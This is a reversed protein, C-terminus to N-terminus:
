KKLAEKTACTGISIQNMKQEEKEIEIGHETRLWEYGSEDIKKILEKNGELVIKGNMLIAVRDINILNYLRAYHSIILFGKGKEQEEKIVNAVVQIADVDLGSDIEDLMTFKPNLLLMQLIENKKKEGGSFGENLNRTSMEFPISTRKYAQDLMQYFKFLSVPKEQHANIAAKLFDANNVGPVESPYQMGLFIGLKSREDAELTTIDKDDLYISGETIQYNPNGMITQILTSKGNGNPGLLAVSEHEDFVFNLGKLIEKDKVSVHLNKIVIKAM